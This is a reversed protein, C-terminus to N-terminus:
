KEEPFLSILWGFRNPPEDPLGRMEELRALAMQAHRTDPYEKILLHYYRRAAGYYRKAEYYQAMNWDRAAQLELIQRYTKLLREKEEGLRGGFQTLTQEAITRADELPTGDYDPGQYFRLKAQVALLHAALQHESQPYEKRLQDYYYSADEYEGHVFHANATAMLADDALPGTPDYLRVNQYAALAKSYADFRPRSPDTLNPTIPWDPDAQYLQEWYRGIAFERAVVTELYRTNEHKKLLKTYTDHAEPYQDTFFYSEGLMFLADEELISDPWRAAATKFEEAAEAYKKDRFLTEGQQYAARAVQEDPGYGTADKAKLYLNKPSLDSLQLGSDEAEEAPESLPSGPLSASANRAAPPKHGPPPAEQPFEVSLPLPQEPPVPLIPGPLPDSGPQGEAGPQPAAPQPEVAPARIEPPPQPIAPASPPAPAPPQGGAPGAAGAGPQVSTSATSPPDAEEAGVLARFLWGEEPDRHREAWEPRTKAREPVPPVGACGGVPCVAGSLAGLLLLSWLLRLTPCLRSPSMSVDKDEPVEGAAHSGPRDTGPKACITGAVKRGSDRLTM